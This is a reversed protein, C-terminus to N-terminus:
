SPSAGLYFDRWALAHRELTGVDPLEAKPCLYYFVADDGYDGRQGVALARIYADNFGWARAIADQAFKVMGDMDQRYMVPGGTLFVIGLGLERNRRKVRPGVLTDLTPPRQWVLGLQAATKWSKTQATLALSSRVGRRIIKYGHNTGQPLPISLMATYYSM